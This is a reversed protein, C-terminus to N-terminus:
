SPDALRDMFTPLVGLYSRCRPCVAQTEAVSNGCQRCPRRPVTSADEPADSSVRESLIALVQSETLERPGSPSVAVRDQEATGTAAQGAQAGGFVLPQSCKPCQVVRGMLETGGRLRHGSPCSVTISTNASPANM